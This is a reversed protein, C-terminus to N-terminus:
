HKSEKSIFRFGDTVTHQILIGVGIGTLPINQISLGLAIILLGFISHHLRYGLLILSTKRIVHTCFFEWIFAIAFGIISFLIITLM